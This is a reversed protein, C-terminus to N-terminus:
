APQGTTKSGAPGPVEVRMVAALEIPSGLSGPRRILEIGSGIVTGEDRGGDEEALTLTRNDRGIVGTIGVREGTDGNLLYGSFLRENQNEVVLTLNRVTKKPVGSLNSLTRLTGSWTGTLGPRTMVAAPQAAHGRATVSANAIPAGMRIPSTCGGALLAIVILLTVLTIKM